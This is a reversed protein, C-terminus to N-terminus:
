SEQGFFFNQAFFFGCGVRCTLHDTGLVRRERALKASVNLVLVDPLKEGYLFVGIKKVESEDSIIVKPRNNDVTM